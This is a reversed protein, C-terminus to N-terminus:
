SLPRSCGYETFALSGVIEKLVSRLTSGSSVFEVSGTGTRQIPISMFKVTVEVM